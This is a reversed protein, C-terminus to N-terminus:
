MSTAAAPLKRPLYRVRWLADTPRVTLCLEPGQRFHRPPRPDQRRRSRGTSCIPMASPPQTTIANALARPYRARASSSAQFDQPRIAAPSRRRIPRIGGQLCPDMTLRRDWARGPFRAWGRPEPRRRGASYRPPAERFTPNGWCSSQSVLIRTDAGIELPRGWPKRGSGFLPGRVFLVGSIAAGTLPGSWTKV